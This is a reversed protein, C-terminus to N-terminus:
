KTCKDQYALPPSCLRDRECLRSSWPLERVASRANQYTKPLAIHLYLSFGYLTAYELASGSRFALASAFPILLNRKVCCAALAVADCRAEPGPRM